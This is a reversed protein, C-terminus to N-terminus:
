AAIASQGLVVVGMVLVFWGFATRLREQPVRGALLGGVISGAVALGTVAAAFPWDITM